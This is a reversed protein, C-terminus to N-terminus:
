PTFVSACGSGGPNNACDLQSNLGFTGAALTLIAYASTMVVLGIIGYMLHKKGNERASENNAGMLYEAAGWVFYLFAIGMLLIILPFLIVRNLDAVFEAAYQQPTMYLYVLLSKIINVRM